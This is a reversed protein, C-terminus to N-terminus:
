RPRRKDAKAPPAPLRFLFAKKDFTGCLAEKGDPSIAVTVISETRKWRQIEKGANVDWLIMTGDSSTYLARQGKPSFAVCNRTELGSVPGKIPGGRLRNRLKGRAVDWVFVEHELGARSKAEPGGLNGMTTTLLTSGDPSLELWGVNDTHPYTAVEKWNATSYGRVMKGQVVLLKKGDRTFLAGRPAQSNTSLVALEKGTNVDCVRVTVWDNAAILRADPSFTAYLNRGLRGGFRKIAKGTAADWLLPSNGVGTLVKDGKPSFVAYWGGEGFRRVQRGTARDCLQNLGGTTLTYRGDPSFGVCWVVDQYGELWRVQVLALAVEARLSFWELATQHDLPAPPTVALSALGALPGRVALGALAATRISESGRQMWATAVQLHKRAQAPEKM